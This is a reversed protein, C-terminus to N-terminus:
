EKKEFEAVLKKIIDYSFGRRQLYSAIKQFRKERSLVKWREWRTGLSKKAMEEENFKNKEFYDDILNQDIGYLRLSRKLVFVAKPKLVSKQEVFWEMFKKDDILDLEELEKVAAEIVSEDWKYRKAKKTLYDVMEKKSRLRFKLFFYARNLAKQVNETEEM